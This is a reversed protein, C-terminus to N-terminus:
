ALENATYNITLNIDDIKYYGSNPLSFEVIPEFPFGLFQTKLEDIIPLKVGTAKQLYDQFFTKVFAGDFELNDLYSNIADKVPYIDEPTSLLRGTQLDIILPDVYVTLSIKLSDPFSNIVRIRNGADKIQKLYAEFRVLQPNALPELIGDNDSAVKIVLEGNNSELVACRDIVRRAEIDTIGTLNYQFQGDIWQLPLGDLFTMAKERYWQITHPRSNKANQSVILEHNYIGFSVNDFWLNEVSVLSFQQEFDLLPDLGYKAIVAPDSIFADTLEKKITKRDRAM